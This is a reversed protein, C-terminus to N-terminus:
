TSEGDWYREWAEPWKKEKLEVLWDRFIVEKDEFRLVGNKLGKWGEVPARIHKHGAPCIVRWDPPLKGSLREL